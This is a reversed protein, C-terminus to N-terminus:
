FLKSYIEFTDYLTYQGNYQSYLFILFSNEKKSLSDNLKLTDLRFALGPISYSTDSNHLWVELTGRKLNKMNTIKGDMQRSYLFDLNVQKKRFGIGVIIFFVIILVGGGAYGFWNPFGGTHKDSRM